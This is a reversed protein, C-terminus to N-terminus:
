KEEKHTCSYSSQILDSLMDIFRSQNNHKDKLWQAINNEEEEVANEKRNMSDSVKM